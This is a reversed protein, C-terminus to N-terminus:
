GQGVIKQSWVNKVMGVLNMRVPMGRVNGLIILMLVNRKIVKWQGGNVGYIEPKKTLSQVPLIHGLGLGELLEEGDVIVVM